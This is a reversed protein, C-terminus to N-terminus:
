DACHSNWGTDALELCRRCAHEDAQGVDACLQRRQWIVMGAGGGTAARLSSDKLVGAAEMVAQSNGKQDGVRLTTQAAAPSVAGVVLCAAILFRIM